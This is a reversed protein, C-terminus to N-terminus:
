NRDSKYYEKLKQKFSAHSHTQRIELPLENWLLVSRSTFFNKRIDLRTRLVALKENGAHRTNADHIDSSFSFFKQKDLCDLSNVIKHVELQDLMKRRDSLSLLGTEKLREEYTIHSFGTIMRLARRQVRELLDIDKCYPPCWVQICYELHPLVYQQYLKVIVEKSRSSFSRYIQGLIANGKKAAIACQRDFKANAQIIVGVDKQERVEGLQSGNLYYPKHKNGSGMHLVHCKDTNFEMQWEKSWEELSTIDQQVGLVDTDSKLGRYLKMDDAFLSLLNKVAQPVRNVFIIFLIPGLVSGQPVSSLVEMWDSAQGNLVVRQQRGTLWGRIWHLAFGSVGHAEIQRLLREHCVKDFAKSYDFFIVDVPWGQDLYETVDELYDLLNTLCSRKTRFGHQVNTLLSNGELHSVLKDKIMREMIKCATSTLSIPRYNSAMHKAGKKFIPTVNALKWDDPVVGGSMSLNFIMSLPFAVEDACAQLV